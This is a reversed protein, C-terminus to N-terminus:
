PRDILVINRNEARESVTVEDGVSIQLGEEALHILNQGFFVGPKGVAPDIGYRNKSLATTVPSGPDTSGTLQNVNPVACRACGKVIAASMNGIRLRRIYDEDYAPLIDGRLVINPRMRDMTIPSPLGANLDDLSAENTLLMPFGDAFGIQSTMGDIQRNPEIRRPEVVRVLQVGKGLYYGFMQAAYEGQSVAKGIKGFVNVERVKRGSPVSINVSFAPFYPINVELEDGNVRAEINALDPHDRQSLFNNDADVLMWQRDYALGTETVDVSQHPVAACGKIPYTYLAAVEISM